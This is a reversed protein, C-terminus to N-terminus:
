PGGGAGRAAIGAALLAAHLVMVRATGALARNLSPGDTRRALVLLQGVALPLTLECLLAWPSALGAAVMTVPTGYAVVLLAAYEAIGAERGFRVPITRRGARRDSDIDRVNNVVLIATGFSGVAFAAPWTADPITRAQVWVTGAVAVFGFFLMVFLDGLGLYALPWPGATYALAAAISALGIAIVPWGAVAALYVGCATALALAVAIGAKMQRPAILGAQTVRLPGIRDPGDAGREHDFVDNALNSAIQLAVAGVLAALAPAPRFGGVARALASGVLVPAVAAPLTKPRCALLWARARSIGTM